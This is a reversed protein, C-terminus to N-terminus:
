LCIVIALVDSLRIGRADLVISLVILMMTPLLLVFTVFLLVGASLTTLLVIAVLIANLLKLMVGLLGVVTGSHCCRISDCRPLCQYQCSM